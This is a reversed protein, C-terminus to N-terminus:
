CLIRANRLLSIFYRDIVNSSEFGSIGRVVGTIKEPATINVPIKEQYVYNGIKHIKGAKEIKKNKVNIFCVVNGVKLNEM